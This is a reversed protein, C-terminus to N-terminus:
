DKTRIGNLKDAEKLADDLNRHIKDLSVMEPKSNWRLNATNCAVERGNNLETKRIFKVLHVGNKQRIIGFM